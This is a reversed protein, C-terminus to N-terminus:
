DGKEMGPKGKPIAVINRHSGKAGLNGLELVGNPKIGYWDYDPLLHPINESPECNPHQKDFKVILIPKADWIQKGGAITEFEAGNCDLKIVNPVSYISYLYDLGRTVVDFSETPKGYPNFAGGNDRNITHFRRMGNNRGVAVRLLIACPDRRTLKKKEVNLRYNSYWKGVAAPNPEIALVHCGYSLAIMSYLGANAGIDWFWMGPKLISGLFIRESPDYAPANLCYVGESLIVKPKQGPKEGSKQETM